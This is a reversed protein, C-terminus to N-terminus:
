ANCRFHSYVPSDVPSLRNQALLTEVVVGRHQPCHQDAVPGCQGFCYLCLPCRHDHIPCHPQGHSRYSVYDGFCHNHARCRCPKFPHDAMTPLSLRTRGLMKPSVSHSRDTEKTSGSHSITVVTVRDNVQAARVAQMHSDTTVVCNLGIRLMRYYADIAVPGSSGIGFFEVRDANSILAVAQQMANPDLVNLTEELAKIDSRFVKQVVAGIDDTARVEEHIFKVPEILDYSLSLKLDQFGKVGLLQCLRVVTGESVGAAEAVETVSKRVVEEPARLIYAAVQQAAPPLGNSLTNLRLLLGRAPEDSVGAPGRRVDSQGNNETAGGM